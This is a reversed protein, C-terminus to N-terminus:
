RRYVIRLRQDYTDSVVLDGDPDFSVGFPRYLTADVAPGGDGGDHQADCVMPILLEDPEIDCSPQGTGAVTTVEGTVPDLSRIAHNNADAVYLLGSAPDVAIQVPYDWRADTGDVYGAVGPVGSLLRDAGTALDVARIAHRDSEAVYLTASDPSLAIGVAPEVHAFPDASTYVTSVVGRALDLVRV